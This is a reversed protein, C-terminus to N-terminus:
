RRGGLTRRFFRSFTSGRRSDEREVSRSPAVSPAQARARTTTHVIDESNDLSNAPSVIAAGTHINPPPINPVPTGPLNDVLSGGGGSPPSEETLNNRLTEWATSQVPNESYLDDFLALDDENTVEQNPQTGPDVGPNSSPDTGSGLSFNPAEDGSPTENAFPMPMATALGALGTPMGAVATVGPGTVIAHIHIDIGPSSGGNDGTGVRVVRGNSNRGTEGGGNDDNENSSSGGLGGALYAALLTSGLSNTSDDETRRSRNVRGGSRIASDGRSVNVMGNVFDEFDPDDPQRDSLRANADNDHDAASLLPTTAMPEDQSSGWFLRSASRVMSEAADEVQEEDERVTAPLSDALVAIHPAADTVTRGLRDLLPALSELRRKSMRHGSPASQGNTTIGSSTAAENDWPLYESLSGATRTEHRQHYEHPVVTSLMSEVDKVIAWLESLMAVREEDGGRIETSPAGRFESQVTPGAHGSRAPHRTRTRFPRIRESDSRIWEDWRHPWGNYHVLLLQVDNNSDRERFGEFFNEEDGSECPELLLQRRGEMDNAGVAPDDPPPGPTHTRRSLSPDRSPLVDEPTVIDVITAELWQNVTDRCDLWQGRYWRRPAELPAGNDRDASAAGLMTHLTMLGQRVPELSGPDPRQRDEASMRHADFRRRRAAAQRSRMDEIRNRTGLALIAGLTADSEDSGSPEESNSENSNGSGLGLLATLLSAGSSGSIVSSGESSTGSGSSTSTNNTEREDPRDVSPAPKPVLHITHGDSLGDVDEIKGTSGRMGDPSPGGIIRGRYILRQRDRNLGTVKEIKDHLTSLADSPAVEVVFNSPVQKKGGGVQSKTTMSDGSGNDSGAGVTKVSISWGDSM